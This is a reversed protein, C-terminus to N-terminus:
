NKPWYRVKVGEPLLHEIPKDEDLILCELTQTQHLSRTLTKIDVVAGTCDLNTLQPLQEISEPLIHLNFNNHLILTRLRRLRFSSPLTKLGKCNIISLEELNELQGLTEPLCQLDVEFLDLEKLSQLKTVSEPLSKLTLYKLGLHTLAPLHGISEPLHSLRPCLLVDLDQLSQLNELSECSELQDCGSIKLQRLNILKNFGEPLRTVASCAMIVLGELSVLLMMEPLETLKPLGVLELNTLRSLPTFCNQGLHRLKPVSDALMPLASCGKLTLNQLSSLLYFSDPLRSLGVYELVLTVLAPLNGFSDPLNQLHKGRIIVVELNKLHHFNSPLCVSSCNELCLVSLNHLGEVDEKRIPWGDSWWGGSRGFVNWLHTDRSCSTMHLFALRCPFRHNENGKLTVNSLRLLRLQQLKAISTWRYPAQVDSTPSNQDSLLIETKAEEGEYNNLLETIDEPQWVGRCFEVPANSPRSLRRGLGCLQEHIWITSNNSTYTRSYKWPLTGETHIHILSRDVLNTLGSEVLLRDSGSRWIARWTGLQSLESDGSDSGQAVTLDLFMRQELDALAYFSIELKAWLRDEASGDLSVARRLKELASNWISVEKRSRLYCGIVELSLPLGGCTSIVEEVLNRLQTTIMIRSEKGLWGDSLAYSIQEPSEVDDLVILVRKGELLIWSAQHHIEEVKRGMGMALSEAILDELYRSKLKKKVDGVFVTFEFQEQIQLLVAKALTTKGIGSMGVLALRLGEAETLRLQRIVEDVHKQMKVFIRPLRLFSMWFQRKSQETEVVERIVDVLFRYSTSTQDKPKSISFNDEGELISFDDVDYRASAEEVVLSSESIRKLLKSLSSSVPVLSSSNSTENAECVGVAKWGQQHRLRAFDTNLRAADKSLVELYEVLPASKFRKGQFFGRSGSSPTSYFFVARTNRLFTKYPNIALGTYGAALKEAHLCVQKLVLGGVSHGVLVIPCNQGIKETRIISQALNEGVLHMDMRGETSTVRPSSDYSVCLVRGQPFEEPLWSNLWCESADPRMWTWLFADRYGEPQFGHFFIIEVDVFGKSPKYFEYLEDNVKKINFRDEISEATPSPSAM